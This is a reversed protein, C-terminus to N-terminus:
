FGFEDVHGECSAVNAFDNKGDEEGRKTDKQFLSAATIQAEVNEQGDKTINGTDEVGEVDNQFVLGWGRYAHIPTTTM